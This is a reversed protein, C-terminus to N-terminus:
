LGKESFYTIMEDYLAIQLETCPISLITFRRFNILFDSFTGDVVTWEFFRKVAFHLLDSLDNINIKSENSYYFHYVSNLLVIIKDERVSWEILMLDDICKEEITSMKKDKSIIDIRTIVNVHEENDTSLSVELSVDKNVTNYNVYGVSLGYSFKDINNLLGM